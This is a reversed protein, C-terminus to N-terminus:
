TQLFFPGFFLQSQKSEFNMFTIEANQAIYPKHNLKFDYLKFCLLVIRKM